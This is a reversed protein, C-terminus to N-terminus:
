RLVATVGGLIGQVACVGSVPLPLLSLEFHKALPGPLSMDLGLIEDM